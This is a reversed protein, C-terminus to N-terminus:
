FPRSLPADAGKKRTHVINNPTYQIYLFIPSLPPSIFHFFWPSFACLHLFPGGNFLCTHASVQPSFEVTTDLQFSSCETVLYTDDDVDMARTMVAVGINGVVKSVDGARKAADVDALAVVKVNPLAEYIRWHTSGMFGLGILGVKVEKM